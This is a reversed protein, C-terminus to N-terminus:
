RHSSSDIILNILALGYIRWKTKRDDLHANWKVVTGAMSSSWFSSWRKNRDLHFTVSSTMRLLWKCTWVGVSQSTTLETVNQKSCVLNVNMLRIGVFLPRIVRLSEQKGLRTFLNAMRWWFKFMCIFIKERSVLQRIIIEKVEM